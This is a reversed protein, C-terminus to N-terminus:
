CAPLIFLYIRLKNISFYRAQKLFMSYTSKNKFGSKEVSNDEKAFLM